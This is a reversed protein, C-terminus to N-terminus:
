RARALAEKYVDTIEDRRIRDVCRALLRRVIGFYQLLWGARVVELKTWWNPRATLPVAPNQEM